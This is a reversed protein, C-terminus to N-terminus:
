KLLIKTYKASEVPEILLAMDLKNEDLNRKLDDGDASYVEFQVHPYKKNFQVVADAFYDMIKSEVIGVRIVGHLIDGNESLENKAQKALDLIEQARLMFLYGNETLSLSRTSRVLLQCGLEQELEQIQRTLAPQSIYLAEAARTINGLRCVTVFSMLVRLDM